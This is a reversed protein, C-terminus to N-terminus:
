ALLAPQTSHLSQSVRGDVNVASLTFFKSFVSVQLCICLVTASRCMDRITKLTHRLFYSFYKPMFKAKSLFM